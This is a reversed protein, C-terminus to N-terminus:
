GTKRGNLRRKRDAEQYLRSAEAALGRSKLDQQANLMRGMATVRKTELAAAEDRLAAVQALLAAIEAQKAEVAEAATLTNEILHKYDALAQQDAEREARAKLDVLALAAAKIRAALTVLKTALDPPADPQALAQETAEHEAILAAREAELAKIEKHTKTMAAM